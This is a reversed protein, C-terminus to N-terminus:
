DRDAGAGLALASWFSSQIMRESRSISFALASSAIATASLQPTLEV